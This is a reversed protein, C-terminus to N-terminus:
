NTRELKEKLLATLRAKARTKLLNFQTESIGLAQQIREPPEDKLYFRTLIEFDRKRMDALSRKMLQVQEREAALQEPTPTAVTVDTASEITEFMGRNRMIQSISSNLQRYLITRVFGMLREPERITGRRIADVVILFVDHVIDDVDQTGLRRQLFLRAGKELNRYLAEEGASDGAHIQEVVIRWDVDSM